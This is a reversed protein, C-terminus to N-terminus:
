SGNLLDKMVESIAERIFSTEKNYYEIAQLLAEGSQTFMGEQPEILISPITLYSKRINNAFAVEDNKFRDTDYSGKLTITTIFDKPNSLEETPSFLFISDTNEAGMWESVKKKFEEFSEEELGNPVLMTKDLFGSRLNTNRYVGMRFESDADNLASHLFAHPYIEDDELNLFYVQGRYNKILDVADGDPTDNLRQERIVDLKRNYAYFWKGKANEKKFLGSSRGKSENWDRYFFNGKYGFSDTKAMRVNAYKLVDLHNVEGDVDYNVHIYAGQHTKISNALKRLFGYGTLGTIKNVVFDNLSKDAFGKGVIFSFLKKSASSATPSNREIVEVRNPYLNDDDNTYIQDSEVFDIKRSFLEVISAVFKNEKM